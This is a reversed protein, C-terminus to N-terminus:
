LYKFVSVSMCLNILVDPKLLLFIHTHKLACKQMKKVKQKHTEMSPTLYSSVIMQMCSLTFLIVIYYGILLCPWMSRKLKKSFSENETDWNEKELTMKISLVKLISKKKDM